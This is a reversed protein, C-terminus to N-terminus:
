DVPSTPSLWTVLGDVGVKGVYMSREIANAGRPPRRAAPPAALDLGGGQEGPAGPGPGPEAARFPRQRRHVGPLPHPRGRQRQARRRGPGGGDGAGRPRRRARRLLSRVTQPYRLALEGIVIVAADKPLARCIRQAETLQPVGGRVRALPWTIYATPLLLPAVTVAAAPPVWGAPVRPRLRSLVFVARDRHGAHHDPRLAADGLDPRAHDVPRVPLAGLDDAGRHPVAAPGAAGATRRDPGVLGHRGPRPCGGAARSVLM